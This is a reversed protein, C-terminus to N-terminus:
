GAIYLYVCVLPTPFFCNIHYHISSYIFYSIFPEKGGKIMGKDVTAPFHAPLLEKGCSGRETLM